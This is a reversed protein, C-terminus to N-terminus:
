GEKSKQKKITSSNDKLWSAIDRSEHMPKKDIFLCPVTARGTVSILYERDDPNKQTDKYDIFSTLKEDEIVSLVLQCFPCQEFYYLELQHVNTYTM